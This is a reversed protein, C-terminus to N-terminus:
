ITEFLDDHHKRVKPAFQYKDEDHRFGIPCALVSHLNQDKLNLIEDFENPRFGEMPTADIRLQACVSMLLGLAIYAQKSTWTKKNDMSFTSIFNKASKSFGDLSQIEVNRVASILSMHNDVHTENPDTVSCLVIFHSADTVQSQGNAAIKLKERIEPNEIILFKLPMLGMSTPTLRLAEKIINLDTESIRKSPDFKKTAYRWQLDEIIKSM